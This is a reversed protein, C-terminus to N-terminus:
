PVDVERRLDIDDILLMPLRGGSIEQALDRHAHDTVILRSESHDLMFTTRDKPFSPDLPVYSMGAKLIGLLTTIAYANSQLLFAVQGVGTGTRKLVAHGINNAEHDAAEYTLTREPDKIAIRKGYKKVQEAFRQHIGQHIAAKEFSEFRNSHTLPSISNRSPTYM